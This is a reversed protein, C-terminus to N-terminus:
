LSTNLLLPHHSVEDAKIQPEGIHSTFGSNSNICLHFPFSIGEGERLDSLMANQGTLDYATMRYVALYWEQTLAKQPNPKDDKFLSPPFFFFCALRIYATIKLKVFGHQNPLATKLVDIRSLACNKMHDLVMFVRQSTVIHTNAKM